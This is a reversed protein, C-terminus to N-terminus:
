PMTATANWIYSTNWDTVTYNCLAIGHSNSPITAGIALPASDNVCVYIKIPIGATQVPLTANLQVTDNQNLTRTVNYSLIISPMPGTSASLSNSYIVYSGIASPVLITILLLAIIPIGHWRGHRLKSLLDSKSKKPTTKPGDILKRLKALEKEEQTKRGM